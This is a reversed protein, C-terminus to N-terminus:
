GGLSAEAYCPRQGLREQAPSDGGEEDTEACGEGPVLNAGCPGWRGSEIGQEQAGPGDEGHAREEEATQRDVRTRRDGERDEPDKRKGPGRPAQHATGM